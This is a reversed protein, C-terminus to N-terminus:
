SQQKIVQLGTCTAYCFLVKKQNTLYFRFQWVLDKEESTLVQTSPYGVIQQFSIFGMMFTVRTQPKNHLYLWSHNRRIQVMVFIYSYFVLNHTQRTAPTQLPKQILFELSNESSKKLCYNRKWFSSTILYGILLFMQCVSLDLKECSVSCIPLEVHSVSM